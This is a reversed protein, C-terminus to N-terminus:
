LSPRLIALPLNVETQLMLERVAHMMGHMTSPQRCSQESLPNTLDAYVADSSVYILHGVPRATLAAIVQGAMTLNQLLLDSNRAPALASVFVVSDDARLLGALREGARHDLLDIDKRTVGLMPVKMKLLRQAIAGGVFGSAGIVVTRSPTQLTPTQHELM